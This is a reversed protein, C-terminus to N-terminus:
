PLIGPLSGGSIVQRQQGTQINALWIDEKSYDKNTSQSYLLWKGDPTWGIHSYTVGDQNLFVHAQTGDPRLLWVQDTYASNNSSANNRVVAIWQGDPSWAAPYDQQGPAGSLDFVKGTSVDYRKLHPESQQTQSDVDWYLFSDDVPSWQEPIGSWYQISHSQEGTLSFIQITNNAPSIYSLWHGDASFGPAFGPFSQDRFVSSTNGSQLDLWWLTFLAQNTKQNYDHREYILKQGDPSWVPGGCQATPCNLVMRLGTGDRRITWISSEGDNKLSTYLITQQDPSVTYGLIGTTESTFQVPNEGSVSAEFLQSFSAKDPATFLIKAKELNFALSAPQSQGQEITPTIHTQVTQVSPVSVAQQTGASVPFANVASVTLGIGLGLVVVASAVPSYISFRNFFDNRQLLRFGQVMAIGIAILVGALGLSFAVILLMGLPIRNIAVAVLLIAIADPCPVLGGSIGLALLSRWTVQDSPLSHSHGHHDHDDEHSHFHTQHNSIGGSEGALMINHTHPNELLSARNSARNAVEISAFRKRKKSQNKLWTLLVSGRRVFLNLGFLIVFLGSIVELWPMVLSPLIYRSAILTALGLLLVSGTHTMTVVTGLLVADRTRGHSGVLYAAVLTKGHGPTLAHLSGLALSLLFAGALFLPSFSQAKMLSTLASTPSAPIAAQPQSAALGAQTNATQQSNQSNALSIALNSVAGTLGPVSPSGSEWTRFSGVTETPSGDTANSFHLHTMVQSNSQEPEDFTIGPDSQLSYWNLSISEQFSDHFEVIHTGSLGPPLQFVLWIEIPEDGTQLTELKSPWHIDKLKFSDIPQNDLWIVWQSLFPEVWTQAEAQSIVGDHNLDAADWLSGALMPGPTIKWDVHISDKSIQISQDLAYMDAPHASVKITPILLNVIFLTCLIGWSM